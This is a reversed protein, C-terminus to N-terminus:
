FISVWKNPPSNWWWSHKRQGLRSRRGAWAAKAAQKGEVQKHQGLKSHHFKEGLLEVGIQDHWM